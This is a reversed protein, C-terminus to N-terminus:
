KSDVLDKVLDSSYVINFTKGHFVKGPITTCKTPRRSLKSSPRAEKIEKRAIAKKTHKKLDELNKQRIMVEERKELRALSLKLEIYVDLSPVDYEYMLTQLRENKDTQQFIKM